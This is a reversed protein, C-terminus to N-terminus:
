PKKGKAIINWDESVVRVDDFGAALLRSQLSARTFGWRHFMFPNDKTQPSHGYVVDGPSIPGAPSMYALGELNGDAIWRCAKQLDPVIIHVMGGTKLARKFEALAVLVDFRHIHEMAHCTYVVDCTNSLIEPIATMSAIYDPKYQDDVDLRVIEYGSEYGAPVLDPGCGVHLLRM